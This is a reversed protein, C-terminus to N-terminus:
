APWQVPAPELAQADAGASSVAKATWRSSAAPM